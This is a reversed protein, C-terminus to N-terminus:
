VANLEISVIVVLYYFYINSTILLRVSLQSIRIDVVWVIIGLFRFIVWPQGQQSLQTTSIPRTTLHQHLIHMMHNQRGSHDVIFILSVGVPQSPATTIAKVPLKM